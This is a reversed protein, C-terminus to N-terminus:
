GISKLWEIGSRAGVALILVRGSARLRPPGLRLSTM